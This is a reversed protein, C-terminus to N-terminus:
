REEEIRGDVLLPEYALRAKVRIEYSHSKADPNVPRLHGSHHAAVLKELLKSLSARKDVFAVAGRRQKLYAM